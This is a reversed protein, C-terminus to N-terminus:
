ILCELHVNSVCVFVSEAIVSSVIACKINWHVWENDNQFSTTSQNFSNLIYRPMKTEEIDIVEFKNVM